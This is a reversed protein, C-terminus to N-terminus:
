ESAQMEVAGEAKFGFSFEVFTHYVDEFLQASWLSCQRIRTGVSQRRRRRQFPESRLFTFDEEENKM